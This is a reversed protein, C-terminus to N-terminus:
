WTICSAFRSPILSSALGFYRHQGSPGGSDQACRRCCLTLVGAGLITGAFLLSSFTM